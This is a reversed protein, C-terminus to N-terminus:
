TVSGADGDGFLADSGIIANNRLKVRDATVTVAGSDGADVTTSRIVSFSRLDLRGAVVTVPGAEAQSLTDNSIRSGGRLDIRNATITVAGGDGAGLTASDIFATRMKLADAAVFVGGAANVSGRNLAAVGSFEGVVIQGGTMRVTGVDDGSVDILAGDKLTIDSRGGSTLRGDVIRADGAGGSALLTVAGAEAAIRGQGGGSIGGDIMIDGGVLSFSEGAPVALTSRDVVINGPRGGLFGFAEPAAVTFSCAAPDAASFAAGDAFRLEEATSVHFSGQLDLRANPGFMVGAPNLFFFDAGPITSRLTGDIDSREGGTVRSIM